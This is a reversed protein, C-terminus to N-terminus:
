QGSKVATWVRNMVRQTKLPKASVTYLKEKVDKTPYISPDGKIEDDVLDTAAENGNAYYIYNTLKAAIEPRMIFNLFEHAEEPHPADAPIAMQDFWMQGGEKPLVYELEVGNGAEAARDAAQMVDGSWGYALCIDGNALANVFESNHFKLVYPRITELLEGAKRIDEPDNSDPDMGLYHLAAPFMEDPEDMVHVGCESVQKLIEPDFLIAWSDLPADPAVEKIKATNMGLGSTGWMYNISYANEPDLKSLREMLQKDMHKLNPLQDRDLKQFVGAQIQRSLFQATPAVVDYGTGGTLLKTELVENSDFVDYKVAIGTEEEFQALVEDDIYDSWNYINVTRDQAAAAGMGVAFVAVGALLTKRIM